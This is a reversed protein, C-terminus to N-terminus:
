SKGRSSTALTSTFTPPSWPSLSPSAMTSKPCKYGGSSIAHLSSPSDSLAPCFNPQPPWTTSNEFTSGQWPFPLTCSNLKEQWLRSPRSRSGISTQPKRICYTRPSCVSIDKLKNIPVRFAGQEFDMDMGLHKGVQNATHYGKTPHIDLGLNNVLTFTEDKRRMTEDFGDTFIAFDDVFPLLRAGTLM